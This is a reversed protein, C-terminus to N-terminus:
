DFKLGTSSRQWFAGGFKLYMDVENKFGANLAPLRKSCIGNLPLCM